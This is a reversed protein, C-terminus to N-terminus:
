ISKYEWGIVLVDDVREERKEWEDLLMKLKQLQFQMPLSQIEKLWAKFGAKKLRKNALGGFQDGLGDSFLYIRDGAELEIQRTIFNEKILFKGIPQKNPKYEIFAESKFVWLPNNAGAWYLKQTLTNYVCLSADMGDSIQEENTEFNAQVLENVKDLINGPDRLGFENVAQNLANHCVVSVMAGPVGHGTCDCAAFMVYEDRSQMWYFDGAVIDKPLYFIFSDELYQKVIKQSPLIASQIRKAYTISALLENNRNEIEKKSQILKQHQEEWDKKQHDIIRKAKLYKNRFTFFYLFIFATQLLFLFVYDYIELKYFKFVLYKKSFAFLPLAILNLLFVLLIKKLKLIRALSFKENRRIGFFIKYNNNM